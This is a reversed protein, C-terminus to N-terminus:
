GKFKRAFTKLWMYSGLARGTSAPGTNKVGILCLFLKILMLWVSVSVSHENSAVGFLCLQSEQQVNVIVTLCSCLNVPVATILSYSLCTLMLM